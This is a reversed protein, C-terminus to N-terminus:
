ATEATIMYEGFKLGGSVHESPLNSVQKHHRSGWVLLRPDVVFVVHQFRWLGRYQHKFYAHHCHVDDQLQVWIKADEGEKDVPKKEDPHHRADLDPLHPIKPDASQRSGLETM